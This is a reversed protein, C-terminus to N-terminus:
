STCFVNFARAKSVTLHRKGDDSAAPKTRLTVIPPDGPFTGGPWEPSLHRHRDTRCAGACLAAIFRAAAIRGQYQFFPLVPM